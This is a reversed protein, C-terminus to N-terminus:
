FPVEIELSEYYTSRHLNLGEDVSVRMESFNGQQMSLFAGGIAIRAMNRYCKGGIAMPM